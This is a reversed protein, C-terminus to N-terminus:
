RRSTRRELAREIMAVAEPIGELRPHINLARRYHTLASLVDGREICAHGLSAAASFHYPNLKFAAAYADAAQAPRDLLSLTIGHQNHAEAFEPESAILSRLAGDALDLDDHKIHDVARALQANGDSSGARMWIGWLSDEALRSTAECPHRLMAVLDPCDRMTGTLGLCAVATQVTQGCRSSLFGALQSTPWHTELTVTLAAYDRAALLPGVTQIFTTAPDSAV